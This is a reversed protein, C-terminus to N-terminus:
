FTDGFSFYLQWQEQHSLEAHKPGNIFGHGLSLRMNGVPSEWRTGFGPSWYQNDRDIALNKQERGLLAFDSFIFPQLRWPLVENFRLETGAYVTTLVGEDSAPLRHRGFGRINDMGGLFLRLSAPVDTSATEPGLILAALDTRLGLVYIPPQWGALNWLHTSSFHHRTLNLDAGALKISQMADYSFQHGARPSSRYYEFDHTMLSVGANLSTLRSLERGPGRETRILHYGPGANWTMSSSSFDRQWTPAIVGKMEVSRFQRENRRLLSISNALYHRSVFPLYYWDFGGSLRITRYSLLAEFVARSGMTGFRSNEWIMRSMLYNETDFGFGFSILRPEGVTSDLQVIGPKRLNCRPTFRADLVLGSGILRQSTLLFKVADYDAGENIALFRQEIRGEIGTIGETVIKRVVWLSGKDVTALVYGTARDAKIDIEACPYGQEALVGAIHAKIQDLMGPTLPKGLPLWYKELVDNFDTGTVELHSIRIIFGARITIRDDAESFEPQLYGRTELASRALSRVQHFPLHQWPPNKPDGCLLMIENESLNLEAESWITIRPCPATRIQVPGATVTDGAPQDGPTAAAVVRSMGIAATMLATAIFPRRLLPMAEEKKDRLVQSGTVIHLWM